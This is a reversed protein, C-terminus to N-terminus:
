QARLWRYFRYLSLRVEANDYALRIRPHCHLGLSDALVLLTFLAEKRLRLAIGAALSTDIPHNM